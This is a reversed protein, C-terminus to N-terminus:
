EDRMDRIPNRRINTLLPLFASMLASAIIVATIGLVLTGDLGFLIFKKHVDAANYALVAATSIDESYRRSLWAAGMAGLLLAVLTIGFSLFITYIIYIYGIDSRTAGLARFVATERRSDAVIKGVVGMLVLSTLAMVVVTVYKMVRWTNQRFDEIASANSGFPKSDFYKGQGACKAVRTDPRDPETMMDSKASCSTERVFKRAAALTEFEAYYARGMPTSDEFTPSIKSAVSEATIARSPSYWGNGLSSQLVSAAIARVSMGYEFNMDPVLGVIRVDTITQQPDDYNEYTKKFMLENNAQQKESATRTDKVVKVEGCPETPVAYQLAPVVYDRKGKNASMERVQDRALQVLQSSAPNRYCLQATKGAIDSRIKVLYDLREKASATSPLKDRGLIAEAVSIPAIVPVSGDKGIALSQGPLVFPRLLDEDFYSWGSSALTDFGTPGMMEGQKQSDAYIEKGNKIPQLYTQQGGTMYMSGSMIDYYTSKYINKAAAAEALKKFDDYGVHQLANYHEKAAAQVIPSSFNAMIDNEGGPGGKMTPLTSDTDADYALGLRKAAAKKEAVLSVTKVRMQEKLDANSFMYSADVIPRAQVIYRSSLGENSFDRLSQVIGAFVFAILSIGAFLLAVICIVVGTRVPRVRLKAAALRTADRLYMM